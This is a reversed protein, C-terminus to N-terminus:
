NMDVNQMPNLATEPPMESSRLTKSQLVLPWSDNNVLTVSPLEIDDDVSSKSGYVVNPFHTWIIRCVIRSAYGMCIMFTILFITLTTDIGSVMAFIFFGVFCTSFFVIFSRSSFLIGRVDKLEYTLIADWVAFCEPLAQIQQQHYHLCIQKVLTTLVVNLLLMIALPPYAMGFSLLLVLVLLCNLAM